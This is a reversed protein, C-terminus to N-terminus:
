RSGTATLMGDDDTSQGGDIATLRPRPTMRARLETVAEAVAYGSQDLTLRGNVAVRYGGHHMRDVGWREGPELVTGHRDIFIEIDPGTGALLEIMAILDGATITEPHHAVPAM